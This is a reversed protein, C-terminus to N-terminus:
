RTIKSSNELNSIIEDIFALFDKELVKYEGILNWKKILLKGLGFLSLFSGYLLMFESINRCNVEVYFDAPDGKVKVIISLSANDYKKDALFIVYNEFKRSTVIFKKKEFFSEVFKYFRNLDINKELIRIKM